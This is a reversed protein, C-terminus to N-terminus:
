KKRILCRILPHNIEEDFSTNDQFKKAECKQSVSNELSVKTNESESFDTSDDVSDKKIENEKKILKKLLRNEKILNKSRSFNIGECISLIGIMYLLNGYFLSLGCGFGFGFGTLIVTNYLLNKKNIELREKNNM